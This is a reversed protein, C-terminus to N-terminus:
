INILYFLGRDFLLSDLLGEDVEELEVGSNPKRVENREGRAADDIM